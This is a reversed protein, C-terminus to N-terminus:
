LRSCIELDWTCNFQVKGEEVLEWVAEKICRSSVSKDENLKGELEQLSMPVQSEALRDLLLCKIKETPELSSIAM